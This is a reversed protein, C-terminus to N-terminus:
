ISKTPKPMHLSHFFISNGFSYQPQIHICCSWSTSWSISPL